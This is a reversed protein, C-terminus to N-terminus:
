FISKIINQASSQHSNYPRKIRIKFVSHILIEHLALHEKRFKKHAQRHAINRKRRQKFRNHTRENMLVFSEKRVDKVVHQLQVQRM